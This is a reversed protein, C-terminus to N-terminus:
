KQEYVDVKGDRMRVVAGGLQEIQEGNIQLSEVRGFASKIAEYREQTMGPLPRDIGKAIRKEFRLFLEHERADRADKRDQLKRTNRHAARIGRTVLTRTARKSSRNMGRARTVNSIAQKYKWPLMGILADAAIRQAGRDERFDPSPEPFSDGGIDLKVDPNKKSDM